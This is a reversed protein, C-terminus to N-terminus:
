LKALFYGTVDFTVRLLIMLFYGTVCGSICRTVKKRLTPPFYGKILTMEYGTKNQTPLKTFLLGHCLNHLGNSIRFFYGTLTKHLGHCNGFFYGTVRLYGTVNKPALTLRSMARSLKALVLGHCWFYGTAFDFFTVRSVGM